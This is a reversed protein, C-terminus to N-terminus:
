RGLVETAQGKIAQLIRTVGCGRDVMVFPIGARSCYEQLRNGYHGMFRVLDVVLDVSGEAIRAGLADIDVMHDWADPWQAESLGLLEVLKVRVEERPVGGVILLRKGELLRRLPEALEAQLRAAASEEPLFPEIGDPLLGRKQLSRRLSRFQGGQAIMAAHGSMLDLFEEMQCGDNEILSEVLDYFDERLVADARVDGRAVIERLLELDRVAQERRRQAKEQAAKEQEERELQKRVGDEDAQRAATRKQEWEAVFDQWDASFRRNLPHIYANVDLRKRAANIAGFTHYIKRELYDSLDFNDQYYRLKGAWINIQVIIEQEGLEDLYEVGKMIEECLGEAERHANAEATRRTLEARLERARQRARAPLKPDETAPAKSAELWFKQAASIGIERDLLGFEQELREALQGARDFSLARGLQVLDMVVADPDQIRQGREILADLRAQTEQGLAERARRAEAFEDSELASSIEALYTELRHLADDIRQLGEDGLDGLEVFESRLEELAAKESRGQQLALEAEDLQELSRALQAQRRESYTEKAVALMHRLEDQLANFDSIPPEPLAWNASGGTERDEQKEQPSVANKALPTM